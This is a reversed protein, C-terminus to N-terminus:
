RNAEESERDQERWQTVVAQAAKYNPCLIVGYTGIIQTRVFTVGHETPRAISVLLEDGEPAISHVAAIRYDSYGTIPSTDAWVAYRCSTHPPIM